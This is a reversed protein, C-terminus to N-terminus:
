RSKIENIIMPNGYICPGQQRRSLTYDIWIKKGDVMFEEPIRLAQLLIDENELEILFSCEDSRSSYDVITGM